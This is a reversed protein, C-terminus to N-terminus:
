AFLCVEHERYVAIFDQLHYSELKITNRYRYILQTLYMCKVKSKHAVCFYVMNDYVAYGHYEEDDYLVFYCVSKDELMLLGKVSYHNRFKYPIYDKKVYQQESSNDIIKQYYQLAEERELPEITKRNLMKDKLLLIELLSKDIKSAKRASQM